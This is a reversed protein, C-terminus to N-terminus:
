KKLLNKIVSIFNLNKYKAPIETNPEWNNAVQVKSLKIKAKGTQVMGDAGSMEMNVRTPLSYYGARMHRSYSTRLELPVFGGVPLTAYNVNDGNEHWFYAEVNRFTLAGEGGLAKDAERFSTRLYTKTMKNVLLISDPTMIIRVGEIGYKTLSIQIAEGRKMKISGSCSEDLNFAKVTADLHASIGQVNGTLARQSACSTTMLMCVAALLTFLFHKM